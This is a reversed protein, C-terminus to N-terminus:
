EFNIRLLKPRIADKTKQSDSTHPPRASLLERPAVGVGVWRAQGPAPDPRAAPTKLYNSCWVTILVSECLWTVGM